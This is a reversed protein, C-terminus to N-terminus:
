ALFQQALDVFIGGGWSKMPPLRESWELKQMERSQMRQFVYDERRYDAHAGIGNVDNRRSRGPKSLPKAVNKRM